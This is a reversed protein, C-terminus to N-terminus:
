QNSSTEMSQANPKQEHNFKVFLSKYKENFSQMMEALFSRAWIWDSISRMFEYHLHQFRWTMM